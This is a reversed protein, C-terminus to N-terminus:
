SGNTRGASGAGALIEALTTVVTTPAGKAIAARVEDGFSLSMVFVHDVPRSFLDAQNEVPVDIGDFYRGHWPTQNDFLRYGQWIGLTALYPFARMPMFFGISEAAEQAAGFARQFAEINREALAVFRAFEGRPPATAESLSITPSPNAALAYLSKGFGSRAIELVEFGAARLTRSLSNVSFMNVHQHLTMSIDGLEISQTADPVNVVLLAGTRLAERQQRLFGVPDQAHELVDVHFILDPAM